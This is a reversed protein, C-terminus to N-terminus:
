LLILSNMATREYFSSTWHTATALLLSSLNGNELSIQLNMNNSSLLDFRHLKYAVMNSFMIAQSVIPDSLFHPFLFTM